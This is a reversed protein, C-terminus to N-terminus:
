KRAGEFIEVLKPDLRDAEGSWYALFSEAVYEQNSETAYASVNVSFQEYSSRLDFGAEKFVRRFLTDDLYHALEHVMTGYPDGGSVNARGSAKLAEVYNLQKKAMYGTEQRYKDILMDVNPLTQATLENYQAIHKTLERENKFYAKNYFLDNSGWRYAADATTGQFAKTRMNMAEINRLKYKPEYQTLVDNMARNFENAYKLDIGSYSVKSYKGGNTFRAAFAEAESITKAPTFDPRAPAAKQAWVIETRNELFDRKRARWAAAKAREASADQGAAKLADAERNWRHINRDFRRELQEAEYETLQEGNYEYKPENLEALKEDTWVRPAGEIYPGFSHRCNWGCLGAGTGYGTAAAFDPYKESKGSRSYIKGQWLAHEPRAGAHASVEVLDCGVEDALEMSLKGATQNVGTLVARRIATEISDTRGSPYRIASIGAEALDKIAGRIASDYDFAGSNVQLWARDLVREFQQTATRATSRTLNRMTQATQQYGTNLTATLGSHKAPDPVDLGAAHYLEADDALCRSGADIMMKRLEAESKKTVPALAELIEEQTHGAARLRASQHDAAPIWYDYTSIRRAMDALIQQEAKRWLRLIPEPLQALYEPDLM